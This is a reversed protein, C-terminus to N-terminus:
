FREIAAIEGGIVPALAAPVIVKSVAWGVAGGRV